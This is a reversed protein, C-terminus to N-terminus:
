NTPWKTGAPVLVVSRLDMLAPGRRPGSFGITLRQQGGPFQLEGVKKWRYESWAGTSEATGSLEGTQGVVVFGNGATDPNCAYDLYVDYAGEQPLDVTWVAHDREGQWFGINRFPSTSEYIIAEGFIEATKASCDVIGSESPRIVVPQNGEFVRRPARAPGLYSFLDALDQPELDQELGEPMISKRTARLEELESRLLVHEKGEREKLTLSSGTEGTLMGTLTVGDRTLASYGLYRSEVDRNPDLTAVLLTAPTRNTLAALDPGVEYGSGDLRHCAACHKRFVVRGREFDGSLSVATEWTKLLAARDSVVVRQLLQEAKERVELREDALLRGRQAADLDDKALRGSDLSALLMQTLGRRSLALELMERRLLPTMSEWRAIALEWGSQDILLTQLALLQTEPTRTPQFGALLFSQLLDREKQSVRESSEDRLLERAFRLGSRWSDASQEETTEALTALTETQEKILERFLDTQGADFLRDGRDIAGNSAAFLEGLLPGFAIRRVTAEADDAEAMEAFQRQVFQLAAAAVERDSYPLVTPLLRELWRGDEPLKAQSTAASWLQVANKANICGLAAYQLAASSDFRALVEVLAPSSIQGDLQALLYCAQLQVAEQSDRSAEMIRRALEGSFEWEEPHEAIIRLAGARLEVSNADLLPLIQEATLRRNVKSALQRAASFAQLQVAPNRENRMVDVIADWTEAAIQERWTLLQQALDRRAGNDSRLEAVLEIESLGSLLPLRLGRDSRPIIRYIRGLRQGAFIDLEAKTAEPIWQGHEIVYRYMDVIYLAGDPGTRVQVPRFWNDTSTLFESRQESKARDGRFSIGERTLEMRHVLQNVPECVFADGYFNPGLKQDRYIEASCASTPRGPAGSLQFLVLSEAPFLQQGHAESAVHEVLNPPALGANRETFRYEVPYHMLLVSNNCGFWNGYD